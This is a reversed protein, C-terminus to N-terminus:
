GGMGGEGVESNASSRAEQKTTFVSVILLPSRFAAMGCIAVEWLRCRYGCREVREISSGEKSRGDMEEVPAQIGVGTLYELIDSWCNNGM